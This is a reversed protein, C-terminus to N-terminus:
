WKEDEFSDNWVQLGAEELAPDLDDSTGAARQAYAAIEQDLWDARARRLHQELVERALQTAPCARRRAEEQLLRYLEDTLPLHFNKRAM